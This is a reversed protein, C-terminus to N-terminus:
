STSNRVIAWAKTLYILENQAMM